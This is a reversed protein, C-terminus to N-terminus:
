PGSLLLALGVLSLYVERLLNSSLVGLSSFFWFGMRNHGGSAVLAHSRRQHPLTAPYAVVLSKLVGFGLMHPM